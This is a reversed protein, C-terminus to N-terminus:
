CSQRSQRDTGRPVSGVGLPGHERGRLISVCAVGADELFVRATVLLSGDIQRQLLLLPGDDHRRIPAM